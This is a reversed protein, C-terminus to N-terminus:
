GSFLTGPAGGATRATCQPVDVPPLALEFGYAAQVRRLAALTVDAYTRGTNGSGKRTRLGYRALASGIDKPTWKAFTVPDLEVARKLLDRAKTSRATGGAVHEALLRLLLEDSEPVADDHASESIQEAHDRVIGLLGGAGCQELWAALALLPQWLEYDRGALTAPCVDARGALALWTPGHELALAHLGDRLEAWAEPDADLRRRPKPSDAAARFMGVRICRSALAEPLGGICSLAKLGYVDFAVQQFGDGVKELRRAPSGAKYRSLLISRVEGADPTGDRLREAEDLLLTGGREHLSRFLCAATM